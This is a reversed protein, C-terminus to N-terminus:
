ASLRNMIYAKVTNGSKTEQEGKYGIGVKDGVKLDLREVHKTLSVGMCNVAIAEGDKTNLILRVYEKMGYDNVMSKNQIAAVTGVLFDGETTPKWTTIVTKENTHETTTM